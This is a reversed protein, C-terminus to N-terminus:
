TFLVVDSISLNQVYNNSFISSFDVVINNSATINYSITFDYFRTQYNNLAQQPPIPIIQTHTIKQPQNNADIIDFIANIMISKINRFITRRINNINISLTRTSNDYNYPVRLGFTQKEFTNYYTARINDLANIYNNLLDIHLSNRLTQWESWVYNGNSDISLSRVSVTVLNQFNTFLVQTCFTLETNIYDDIMSSYVDLGYVTNINNSNASALIFEPFNKVNSFNKIHIVYRGNRTIKNLDVISRHTSEDSTIIGTSFKTQLISELVRKSVPADLDNNAIVNLFEDYTNILGYYWLPRFFESNDLSINNTNPSKICVYLNMKQQNNIHDVYQYIIDGETYIHNINYEYIGTVQTNGILM